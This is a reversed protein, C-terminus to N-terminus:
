TQAQRPAGHEGDRRQRILAQMDAYAPNNPAYRRAHTVAADAASFEGQAVRISALLPWLDERDPDDQLARRCYKDARELNGAAFYDAARLQYKGPSSQRRSHSRSSHSM